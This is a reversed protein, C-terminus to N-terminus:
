EETESNNESFGSKISDAKESAKEAIFGALHGAGTLKYKFGTFMGLILLGVPLWWKVLLLLVLVTVSVSEILEDKRYLELRITEGKNIYKCLFRICNVAKGSLEGASSRRRVRKEASPQAEATSQAQAATFDPTELSILADLIDWDSKELASKAVDYTVGTKERIKEVMELRTM